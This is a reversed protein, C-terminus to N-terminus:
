ETWHPQGNFWLIRGAHGTLPDSDQEDAEDIAQRLTSAESETLDALLRDPLPENLIRRIVEDESHADTM